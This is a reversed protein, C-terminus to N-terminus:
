PVMRSNIRLSFKRNMLQSMKVIKRQIKKIRVRKKSSNHNTQSLKRVERRRPMIRARTNKRVM